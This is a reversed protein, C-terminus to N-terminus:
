GYLSFHFSIFCGRQKGEHSGSGMGQQLGDVIRRIHALESAMLEPRQSVLQASIHELTNGAGTAV